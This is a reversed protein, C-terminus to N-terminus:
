SPVGLSQLGCVVGPPLGDTQIACLCHSAASHPGGDFPIWPGPLLRISLPSLVWGGGPRAASPVLMPSEQHWLDSGSSYQEGAVKLKKEELM